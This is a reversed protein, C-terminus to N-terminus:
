LTVSSSEDSSIDRTLVFVIVLFLIIELLFNRMGLMQDMDGLMGSCLSLMREDGIIGFGSVIKATSDPFLFIMFSLLMAVVEIAHITGMRVLDNLITIWIIFTAFWALVAFGYWVMEWTAVRLAKMTAILAVELCITVGLWFM